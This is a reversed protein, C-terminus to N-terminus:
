KLALTWLFQRMQAVVTAERCLLLIGAYAFFCLACALTKLWLRPDFSNVAVLMASFLATAVAVNLFSRRPIEPVGFARARVAILAGYFGYAGVTGIAAGAIGYKPVLLLDLFLNMGVAYVISSGIPKTNAATEFTKQYFQAFQWLLVGLVILPFVFAAPVYQQGLLVAVVECRMLISWATLPAGIMLLLQLCNGTLRRAGDISSAGNGPCGARQFIRPAGALLLPNTLIMVAANSLNYVASYLGVERAGRFGQIVYRDAVNLLQTSFAWVLFPAGYSLAQLGLQRGNPTTWPLSLFRRLSTFGLLIAAGQGAMQGLVLTWWLGARPHWLYCLTITVGWRLIGALACAATYDKARGTGQLLTTVIAQLGQSACLILTASVLGSWAPHLAILFLSVGLLLAFALLSARWMVSWYGAPDVSEVFQFGYRLVWQCLWHFAGTAAIAATASVLNFVGFDAPTMLRLVWTMGLISLGLPLGTALFYLGVESHFSPNVHKTTHM